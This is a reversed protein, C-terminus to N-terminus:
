AGSRCLPHFISLYEFQASLEWQACRNRGQEIHHLNVFNSNCLKIISAGVVKLFACAQRQSSPLFGYRAPPLYFVLKIHVELVDKRRLFSSLQKSVHGFLQFPKSAVSPVQVIASKASDVQPWDWM